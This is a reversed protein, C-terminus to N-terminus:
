EEILKDIYSEFEKDTEELVDVFKEVPPQAPQPPAPTVIPEKIMQTPIPVTSSVSTTSSYDAVPAPAPSTPPAAPYHHTDTAQGLAATSPQHVAHPQSSKPSLSITSVTRNVPYSPRSPFADRRIPENYRPVNSNLLDRVFDPIPIPFHGVSYIRAYMFLAFLSTGMFAVIMGINFIFNPIEKEIYTGVLMIIFGIIIVLISAQEPPIGDKEKVSTIDDMSGM